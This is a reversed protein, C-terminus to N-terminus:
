LAGGVRGMTLGIVVLLLMFHKFELHFGFVDVYSPLRCRRGGSGGNEDEDSIVNGDKGIRVGKRAM